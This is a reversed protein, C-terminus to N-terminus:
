KLNSEHGPLPLYIMRVQDLPFNAFSSGDSDHYNLATTEYWANDTNSPDDVYGQYVQSRTTFLIGPNTIRRFYRSLSKM